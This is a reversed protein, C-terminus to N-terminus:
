ERQEGDSVFDPSVLDDVKQPPAYPLVLGAVSESLREVPEPAGDAVINQRLVALAQTKNGALSQQNVQVPELCFDSGSSQGGGELCAGAVEELIRRETLRREVHPDIVLPRPEASPERAHQRVRGGCRGGVAPPGLRYRSRM